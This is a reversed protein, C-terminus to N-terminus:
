EVHGHVGRFKRVLHTIEFLKQLNQVEGHLNVDSEFKMENKLKMKQISM